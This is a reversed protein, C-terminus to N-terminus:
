RKSLLYSGLSICLVYHFTCRFESSTNRRSIAATNDGIHSFCLFFYSFNLLNTEYLRTMVNIYINILYAMLLACYVDLLGYKFTVFNYEYISQNYPNHTKFNILIVITNNKCFQTIYCWFSQM